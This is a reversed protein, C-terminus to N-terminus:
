TGTVYKSLVAMARGPLGLRGVDEAALLPVDMQPVGEGTVTLKGVTAGKTVPARLPADYSVKISAKQRWNRPMTVILDRGAVLPVTRETGLWVPVSDVVDGATFLTVDEFNFFLWDMLRESEEAREHMSNMGNLVLIVRRDNRRSSVVLGYGGAETHGTKLGDATGRQVMPNRNGQDIGNYRFSKEADYHYYEPFDHIIRGALVAIDRASMHQDPDPWGTCNKFYSHTLGLEAAKKNMLDVFGEESGGLAEALVIAADNGSQVIVGRILDEVKVSGGIPVFMKSGQMRWAKETVPLEDDLKLRGQKLREYVLYVTMLKTMSSPPMEEDAQKELLTAGTTFDMGYAWRATTDVPGLPTDAPSGTPAPEKFKRSGAGSHAGASPHRQAFAPMAGTPLLTTLVSALLGSRRTLM